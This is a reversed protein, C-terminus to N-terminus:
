LKEYNSLKNKLFRIEEQMLSVKQLLNFIADIGEINIDMEYHMRILKEIKHLEELAIFQTDGEMQVEILGQEKLSTLFAYDVSYHTCFDDTSILLEPTM